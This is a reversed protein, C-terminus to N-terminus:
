QDKCLGREIGRRGAKNIELVSRPPGVTAGDNDIEVQVLQTASCTIDQSQLLRVLRSDPYIREIADDEGFISIGMSGPITPRPGPYDEALVRVPAADSGPVFNRVALILRGSDVGVIAFASYSKTLALPNSKKMELIATQLKPRISREVASAAFPVTEVGRLANKALEWADYGTAPNNYIGSMALSFKDVVIIKCTNYSVERSGVLHRVKSDTALVIKDPTWIAVAATGHFAQGFCSHALVWFICAALAMSRHVQPKKPIVNYLVDGAQIHIDTTVLFLPKV